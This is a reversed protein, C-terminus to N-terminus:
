STLRVSGWFSKVPSLPFLFPHPSSIHWSSSSLLTPSCGKILLAGRLVRTEKCMWLIDRCVNWEWILLATGNWGSLFVKFEGGWWWWRGFFVFCPFISRCCGCRVKNGKKKLTIFFTFYVFCLAAFFFQLNLIHVQGKIKFANKNTTDFAPIIDSVPFINIRFTAPKPFSLGATAGADRESPSCTQWLYTDHLSIVATTIQHSAKTSCM